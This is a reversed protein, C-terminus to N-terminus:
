QTFDVELSDKIEVQLLRAFEVFQAMMVVRIRNQCDRKTM